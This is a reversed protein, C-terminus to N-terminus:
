CAWIGTQASVIAPFGMGVAAATGAAATGLFKRRSETQPPTASPKKQLVTIRWPKHMGVSRRPFASSM